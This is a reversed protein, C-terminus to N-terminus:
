EELVEGHWTTGGSATLALHVFLRDPSAGHWHKEGPAVYVVDGPGVELVPEGEKGIRGSGALVLVAQEGEHEHWYSRAGPDYSFRHLRMGGGVQAEVIEEHWVGPTFKGEAGRRPEVDSSRILKM